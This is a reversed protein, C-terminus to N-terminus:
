DGVRSSDADVREAHVIFRKPAHGVYYFPYCTVLTLEPDRTPMLVRIDKPTVIETRAVTYHWSGHPTALTIEDHPRINRLARFFKDRHAAIAVNGDAGPLATSPVHGAGRKLEAETTGELIKTAVHLRPIEIEGLVTGPKVRPARAAERRTSVEPRSENNEVTIPPLPTQPLPKLKLPPLPQQLRAANQRTSQQRAQWYWSFIGVGVIVAIAFAALALWLGNRRRM